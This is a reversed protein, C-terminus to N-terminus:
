RHLVRAARHRPASAAALSAWCSPWGCRRGASARASDARLACAARGRWARARACDSRRGLAGPNSARLHAPDRAGDVERVPPVRRSRVGNTEDNLQISLAGGSGRSPSRGQRTRRRPSGRRRHAGPPSGPLNRRADPRGQYPWPRGPPPGPAPPRPWPSGELGRRRTRPAGPAARVCAPPLCTLTCCPALCPPRVPALPLRAGTGPHLPVGRLPALQVLGLGATSQPWALPSATRRRASTGKFPRPWGSGYARRSRKVPGAGPMDEVARVRGWAETRPLM